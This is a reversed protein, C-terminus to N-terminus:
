VYHTVVLKMRQVPDTCVAAKKLTPAWSLDNKVLALSSYPHHVYAPAPTKTIDALHGKVLQSAVKKTIDKMANPIVGEEDRMIIGGTASADPHLFLNSDPAAGPFPKLEGHNEIKHLFLNTKIDGVTKDTDQTDDEASKFSGSEASKFSGNDEQSQGAEEKVEQSDM